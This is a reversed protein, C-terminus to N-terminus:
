QSNTSYAIPLVDPTPDFSFSFFYQSFERLHWASDPSARPRDSDNGNFARKDISFSRPIVLDFQLADHPPLYLLVPFRLKLSAMHCLDDTMEGTVTLTDHPRQASEIARSTGIFYRGEKSHVSFRASLVFVSTPGAVDCLGTPQNADVSIRTITYSRTSRNTLQLQFGFSSDSEVARVVEAATLDADRLSVPGLEVVATDNVPSLQAVIKRYPQYGPVSISIRVERDRAVPELDARCLVEPDAAASTIPCESEGVSDAIEYTIHPAVPWPRGRFSTLPPVVEGKVVLTTQQAYLCGPVILLAALPLRKM